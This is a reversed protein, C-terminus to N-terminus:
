LDRVIPEPDPKNVGLAQDLWADLERDLKNQDAPSVRKADHRKDAM